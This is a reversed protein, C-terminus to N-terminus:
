KSATTKKRKAPKKETKKKKQSKQKAEKTEIRKEEEREPEKEEKAKEVKEEKEKLTRKKNVETEEKKTEAEASPPLIESVPNLITLGLEEAKGIILMRKRTGVQHAIRIAYTKPDIKELNDTNHVIVERYGSPHLGRTRRPGRYGVNPSVEWGKLKLRAKNDLGRQNRWSKGLRVYRWSEYRIFEPKKSKLKSRIRIARRDSKDEGM